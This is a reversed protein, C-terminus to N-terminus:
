MALAPGIGTVVLVAAFPLALLNYGLARMLGRGAHVAERHLPLARAGAALAPYHRAEVAEVSSYTSKRSSVMGPQPFIIHDYSAKVDRATLLSGDHFKLGPRLRFAAKTFDATMEMREALSYTHLGQPMPKVMADHVLYDYVVQTASAQHLRPIQAKSAPLRISAKPWKVCAKIESGRGKSDWKM